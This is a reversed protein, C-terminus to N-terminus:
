QNAMHIFRQGEVKSTANRKMATSAHIESTVILLFTTDSQHCYSNIHHYSVLILHHLFCSMKYVSNSYQSLCTTLHTCRQSGTM